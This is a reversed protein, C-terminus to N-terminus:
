SAGTTSSGWARSRPTGKSCCLCIRGRSRILKSLAGIELNFDTCNHLTTQMCFTEDREGDPKVKMVMGDKWKGREWLVQKLGKAKGAWGEVMVPDDKPSTVLNGDKGM